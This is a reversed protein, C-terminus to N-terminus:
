LGECHCLWIRRCVQSTRPLGPKCNDFLAAAWRTAPAVHSRLGRLRIPIRRECDGGQLGRLGCRLLLAPSSATEAGTVVWNDVRGSLAELLAAIADHVGERARCLTDSRLLTEQEPLSTVLRGSVIEASAMKDSLAERDTM